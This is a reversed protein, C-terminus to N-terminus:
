VVSVIVPGLLTLLVNAVAYPATFGLVPTSSEAVESAALMAADQTMSGAIAGCLLVPNLDLVYRGFYVAAFMPILTVAVGAVLIAPGRAV